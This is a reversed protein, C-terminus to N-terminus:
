FLVEWVFGNAIKFSSLVSQIHHVRSICWVCVLSRVCPYIRCKGPPRYLMCQGSSVCVQYVIYFEPKQSLASSVPDDKVTKLLYDTNWRLTEKGKAWLDTGSNNYGNGFSLMGWALM